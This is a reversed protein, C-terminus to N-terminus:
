VWLQSLLCSRRWRLSRLSFSGEIGESGVPTVADVLRFLWRAPRVLRPRLLITGERDPVASRTSTVVDQVPLELTRGFADLLRARKLTMSGSLVMRPPATPAPHGTSSIANLAHLGDRAPFGLLQHRLGDLTAGMVDLHRVATDLTRYAAELEDTAQGAKHADLADEAALWDTIADHLTKAASSTLVSRGRLSLRDGEASVGELDVAGLHWTQLTPPNIGELDVEWEIWLPVWPQAWTTVGVLDPDAGHYISFKRLEDAVLVSQEWQGPRTRPAAARSGRSPTQSRQRDFVVTAGDYTGDRGFRLLSEARLRTLLIDRSLGPPALAAAVWGDHYPDHLLAERALALVETPVSGSGLSRIFRDPAIVGDIRDVV